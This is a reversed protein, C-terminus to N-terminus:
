ILRDFGHLGASRYPLKAVDDLPVGPGSAAIYDSDPAPVTDVGLKVRRGPYRVIGLVLGDPHALGAHGERDLRDECQPLRALDVPWISPRIHRDIAVPSSLETRALRIEHEHNVASPYPYTCLVCHKDCFGADLDQSRAVCVRWTAGNCHWHRRIPALDADGPSLPSSIALQHEELM